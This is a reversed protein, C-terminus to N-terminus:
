LNESKERGEARIIGGPPGYEKLEIYGYWGSRTKFEYGAARLEKVYRYITRQSVGLMKALQITKVPKRIRLLKLMLFLNQTKTM